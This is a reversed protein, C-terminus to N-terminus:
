DQLSEQGGIIVAGCSAKISGVSRKTNNYSFEGTSIEQVELKNQSIYGNDAPCAQPQTVSLSRVVGAEVDSSAMTVNLNKITAEDLDIDAANKGDVAVNEYTGALSFYENAVSIDLSDQTGLNYYHTSGSQVDISDLAPGYIKLVPGGAFYHRINQDGASRYILNLSASKGDDSVSLQPMTGPLATLEYRPSDSVIYEVSALGPMEQSSSVTLSKVKAFEDALDVNSVQLADRVRVSDQWSGYWVFGAGSAFTVLGAIIVSVVAVSTKKSWSKKFVASALLFQLVSLLVGAATFLAVAVVFWWSWSEGIANIGLEQSGLGFVGVSMFVTAILTGLGGVVLGAGVIYRLAVRTLKAVDNVKESESLAKISKLTVPEGRSQLKEAATKAPPVILWLIAYILLATGFSPILFVLFILRAWLSSIGFYRAIGALVGGVLANDIDRYVRKGEQNAHEAEVVAHSVDDPAFDSPEGLRERVSALDQSTIVGGAPVKQEALLETIRIEIDDLIEPDEAYSELASTYKELEKKATLEIDYAIKAIHIRTIEKM